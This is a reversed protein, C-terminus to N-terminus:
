KPQLWERDKRFENITEAFPPEQHKLRNRLRTFAWIAALTYIFAFGAAAYVRGEAPFLLIVSATVVIVAMMAFFLATCVWILLEIASTKEERLELAFLEVRTQVAALANDALRRASSGLGPPHDNSRM